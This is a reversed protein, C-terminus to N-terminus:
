IKKKENKYVNITESYMKKVSFNKKVFLYGNFSLKKRLSIDYLLKISKSLLIPNNPKVLLGNYNNKIIEPMASSNSCIIPKKSLMAELFVLGLGEYHSTLVFIDISKYFNKCDDVFEIWFIQNEIKLEKTLGILQNKLPGRGVIFLKVNKNKLEHISRIINDISKQPVLRAICGLIIEDKNKKKYPSIDKKQTNSLLSLNDIGYYIVKIKSPDLGVHSSILFFKVAKSIAIIKLTKKAIIRVLFSGLINKKQGESGKFFVNDVHKSIIFKPKHSSLYICFFSVIEMYPLHAHLIEPKFKELIKKLSYIDLILKILKYILNKENFYKSKIVKIKNRKLYKLWYFSNKSIFIKVLNNNKAQESSLISLHNEAGGKDLSTIAHLIKM